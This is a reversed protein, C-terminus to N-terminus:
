RGVELCQPCYPEGADAYFDQRCCSCIALTWCTQGPMQQFADPSFLGEAVTQVSYLPEGDWTAPATELEGTDSIRIQATSDQTSM